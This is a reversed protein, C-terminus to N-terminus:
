PTSPYSSVRLATRFVLSSAVFLKYRVAGSAVCWAVLL